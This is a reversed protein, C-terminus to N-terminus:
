ISIVILMEKLFVYLTITVSHSLLQSQISKSIINIELMLLSYLSLVIKFQCTALIGKIDLLCFFLIVFSTALDM